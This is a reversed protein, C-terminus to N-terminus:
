GRSREQLDAFHDGPGGAHGTKKQSVGTTGAVTQRSIGRSVSLARAGRARAGNRSDALLSEDLPSPTQAVCERRRGAGRRAPLGGARVTPYTRSHPEPRIAARVPR